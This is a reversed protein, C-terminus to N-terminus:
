GLVMHGGVSLFIHTFKKRSSCEKSNVQFPTNKNKKNQKKTRQTKPNKKKTLMHQNDISTNNQKAKIEKKKQKGPETKTLITKFPLPPPLLFPKEM